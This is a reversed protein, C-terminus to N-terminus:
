ESMKKREREKERMERELKSELKWVPIKYETLGISYRERGGGM